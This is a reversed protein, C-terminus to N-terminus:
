GGNISNLSNNSDTGSIDGILSGNSAPAGQAGGGMGMEMAKQQEFTIPAPLDYKAPEDGYKKIIDRFILEKNSSFYEPFLEAIIKAKELALAMELSRSSQWLSEPVIKITFSMTDLFNYPVIIKEYSKGQESNYQREADVEQQLEGKQESITQRDMFQISKTGRSGDSLKANDVNFTRMEEQIKEVNDDGIISVLKPRTYSLLINPLRLKVKQLWLHEMFMFFVGKLQKAREDANVQARATVYKQAVGQQSADLTTLDLNASLMDIMKVDSDTVGTIGLPKIQNVDDVYIKTDGAVIDDELDFADKNIQGVILPQVMARYSKDAATNYMSNLADGEGMASNPMSNGYFFEGTAFPEFITKAIPYMKKHGDCTIDKWLLPGNFIEVGNIIIRYMDRFKNQYRLVLYGRGDISESWDSHFYKEREPTPIDKLDKIYKFNPYKGWVEEIQERSEYFSYFIIAPQKQIDRIYFNKILLNEIPIEYSVPEGKSITKIVEEEIDGTAVDFSVIRKKAYTQMEMGEYSLVTGKGANSWGLFFIDEQVNGLTSFSYDVLDKAIESHLQQTANNEDIAEINIDPIDRSAAALLAKMKNAYARTAFNSQWDEKGQLPKPLVYANIRKENDDIFEILTRDNFQLYTMNRKDVMDRYEDYVFKIRAKQEESPEYLEESIQSTQDELFKLEVPTNPM